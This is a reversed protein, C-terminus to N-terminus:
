GLADREQAFSLEGQDGKLPSPVYPFLFNKYFIILFILYKM